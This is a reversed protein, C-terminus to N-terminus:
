KGCKKASLGHLFLNRDEGDASFEDNEYILRLVHEGASLEKSGFDFLRANKSRIEQKGVTEGDIQLEVVAYVGGLPSSSGSVRFEYKGPTAANFKTELVANNRCEIRNTTQEFYPSEGILRLATLPINEQRDPAGPTAFSAGLNRLVSNFLKQSKDPSEDNWATSDLVVRGKGLEVVALSGPVAAFHLKNFRPDVPRLRVNRVDFTSGGGWVSGNSFHFEISNEGKPLLIPIEFKRFSRNKLEFFAADTENTRVALLPAIGGKANAKAEFELNCLGGPAASLKWTAGGAKDFHLRDGFASIEKLVPKSLAIEGDSSPVVLKAPTRDAHITMIREWGLTTCHVFEERSVGRLLPSERDAPMGSCESPAIGLGSLGSEACISEFLPSPKPNRWLLTGGDRIFRLMAERSAPERLLGDSLDGNMLILSCENTNSPLEKGKRWLVGIENLIREMREDSGLFLLSKPEEPRPLAALRDIANQLLIQAAPEQEIKERVLAQLLALRGKGFPMEFVTGQALGNEGGSVVVADLGDRGNRRIQKKAVCNDDAWFKLSDADLGKLLPHTPDIAFTMTSACDFLDLGLGLPALTEQELVVARGGEKLFKQFAETDFATAGITPMEVSPKDPTLAGAEILLIDKEPNLEDFRFSARNEANLPVLNWGKPARPKRQEVVQFEMPESQLIEDGDSLELILKAVGPDDISLVLDVPKSEGPELRVEAKAAEKGKADRLKLVLDRGKPGDNVVDFRIARERDAYLRTGRSRPYASVLRYFSKQADSAEQDDFVGGFWYVTWPSLGSVGSIRYAITQDFWAGIQAKKHFKPRNCYAEDGFWITAVSYDGTPVWLYEGIYLPKKRDWFFSGSKQGLMGGGAEAEIKSDLWFACNPYAHQAPMEHPYHLGIVDFAEDPNRDAEYTTLHFPDIKKAYRGIEGLKKPLDKDYRENGMFLIENGLSWMFLSAHNRDRRILGRVHERYNNWFTEDRYAYFGSEDTYIAMESITLIGIRDAAELWDEQWPQNHFRFAVLGEDKWRQVRNFVEERPLFAVPWTSSALIRRKVGNLVIDPGDTWVEKFGFPTLLEDVVKGDRVLRLRLLYLHPSEPSWPKANRFPTSVTWEDDGVPIEPIDLVADQGDLVTAFLKLSDEIGGDVRGRLTLTGKRVSPIIELDLDPIRPGAYSDLYVPLWPGSSERASGVPAIVKGVKGKVAPNEVFSRDGCRIDLEHSSGPKVFKTIEVEFPTWGDGYEGAFKGDVFVAPKYKAGRLNVFIRRDKWDDPIRITKRFWLCEPESKAPALVEGPVVFPKWAADRSPPNKAEKGKTTATRWDSGCLDIRSRTQSLTRISPQDANSEAAATTPAFPTAAFLLVAFATGFLRKFPTM